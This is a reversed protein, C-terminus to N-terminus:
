AEDFYADIASLLASEAEQLSMHEIQAGAAAANGGGGLREAILQVNIDGSSRASLLLQGGIPALVLSANIGIISLLEDAAKSATIRDVEQESVALAIEGRYLKATQVIGYRRLTKDLDSQFFRRVSATDAGARRLYAAADFTAGGTRLTFNKTDLIIGALIAEAEQKMLDGPELIHAILEVVLESASSAYIDQFSLDTRELDIYTAARRHHDIVVLRNARALLAPSQAQEPRNTDVVAVVSNADLLEQAEEERIFVTEYEPLTELLAVMEEGPNPQPDRIIYAPIGRARAIAAMGAAAGIVDLDPHRHGMIIMRSASSLMESLANAVVRSKVKTRRESEKAKGGIFDYGEATKIVVQDGGRSLAMEMSLTAARFLEHLSDEDNGLSIGISLTAAIGNSAHLQRVSELISFKGGQFRSLHSHEFVFLLHDRDYRCLIGGAPEAWNSIRKNIESLLVSREGEELGRMLDDYNDMLLIAVVPRSDLYRQETQYYHSIEVWYTMALNGHESGSDILNGFVLYQREGLQMPGPAQRKGDLLWRSQFDPVVTSLNTDYLHDRNGTIELFRDNTWVIDDSESFFLAVPLPANVVASRTAADVDTSVSAIYQQMRQEQKGAVARLIGYCLVAALAEFLGALPSFYATVAAFLLALAFFFRYSNEAPLPKNRKM